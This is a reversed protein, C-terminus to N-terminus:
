RREGRQRDSIDPYLAAAARFKEIEQEVEAKMAPGAARRLEIENRILNELNGGERRYDKELSSAKRPSPTRQTWDSAIAAAKKLTIGRAKMNAMDLIATAKIDAAVPRRNSQGDARRQEIGRVVYHLLEPLAPMGRHNCFEIARDLFAPERNILFEQVYCAIHTGDGPLMNTPNATRYAKAVASCEKWIEDSRNSAPGPASRTM